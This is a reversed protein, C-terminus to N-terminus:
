GALESNEGLITLYDSPSRKQGVENPLKESGFSEMTGLGGPESKPM